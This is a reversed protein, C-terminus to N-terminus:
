EPSDMAMFTLPWGSVSGPLNPPSVQIADSGGYYDSSPFVPWLAFPPLKDSIDSCLYGVLFASDYGHIDAFHL